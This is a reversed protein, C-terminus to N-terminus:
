KIVMPEFADLPVRKEEGKVFLGLRRLYAAESEYRPPDSPDYLKYERGGPNVKRFINADRATVFRTPLGFRLNAPHDNGPFVEGKGGVRRRPESLDFKWSAFPRRGPNAKIFDRLLDERSEEWLPRDGGNCRLDIFVDADGSGDGTLLYRKAAESITVNLRGERRQRAM